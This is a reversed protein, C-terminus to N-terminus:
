RLISGACYAKGSKMLKLRWAKLVEKCAPTSGAPKDNLVADSCYQTFQEPPDCNQINDTGGQRTTPCGVLLLIVTLTAIIEKQMAPM